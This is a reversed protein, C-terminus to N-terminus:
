SKLHKPKTVRAGSEIMKIYRNIKQTRTEKPTPTPTSRERTSSGDVGLRDIVQIASKFMERLVNLNDKSISVQNKM